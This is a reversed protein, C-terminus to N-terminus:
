LVGGRVLKMSRAFQWATWAGDSLGFPNQAREASIADPVFRDREWMRKLVECGCNELPMKTHALRIIAQEAQLTMPVGALYYLKMRSFKDCGCTNSGSIKLSAINSQLVTICANHETVVCTSSCVKPKYLIVQRSDDNYSRCVDVTQLYPGGPGTNTYSLGTEPNEIWGPAVLRARPVEFTVTILLPDVVIKSFPIEVQTGPYFLRFEDESILSALAVPGIVAPDGSHDIAEGDSLHEIAEIGGELVYGRSASVLRSFPKEDEFWRVGIPYGTEDEIEKQAECLADATDRRMDLTWISNCAREPIGEYYIGFFAREDYRVVQAYRALTVASCEQILDSAKGVLHPAIGLSSNGSSPIPSPPVVIPSLTTDDSTPM